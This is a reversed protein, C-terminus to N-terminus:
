CYCPFPRLLLVVSFSGGGRSNHLDPNQFGSNQQHITSSWSVTGTHQTPGDSRELLTKSASIMKDVNYSGTFDETFGYGRQFLPGVGFFVNIFHYIAEFRGFVDECGRCSGAIRDYVGLTCAGGGLCMFPGLVRVECGEPSVYKSANKSTGCLILAVASDTGLLLHFLLHYV